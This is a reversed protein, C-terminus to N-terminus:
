RRNVSAAVEAGAGAAPPSVAEAVIRGVAEAYGVGARELAAAFGADPSLCPNANVELVWPRGAHDVRFDVRAYGKLGFCHWCQMAIKKLEALLGTEPTDFAFRRPTHHYEYASDDWKARYDVIRPMKDTYGDFVIEAPPLVEVGHPGDLLSLNFERGDIYREAFCAGGLRSARRRMRDVVTAPDAASVISDADLGISAHEWVSKVIWRDDGACDGWVRFDNGPWPGIWAPTPVGATGMW